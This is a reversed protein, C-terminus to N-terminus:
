FLKPSKRIFDVTSHPKPLNISKRYRGMSRVPIIVEPKKKLMEMLVLVKSVVKHKEDAIELDHARENKSTMFRLQSWNSYIEGFSSNRRWTPSRVLLIVICGFERAV